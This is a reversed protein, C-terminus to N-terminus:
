FVESMGEYQLEHSMFGEMLTSLRSIKFGQAEFHCWYDAEHIGKVDQHVQIIFHIIEMSLHHLSPITAPHM